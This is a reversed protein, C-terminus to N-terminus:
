PWLKNWNSLRTSSSVIDLGIWIWFIGLILVSQVGFDPEQVGGAVV